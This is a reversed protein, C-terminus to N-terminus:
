CAVATPLISNFRDLIAEKISEMEIPRGLVKEVATMRREMGCPRILSFNELDDNKVNLSLGHFSIWNKISIGLSAIKEEGVWVGTLGPIQRAKAGFDVLSAIVINELQRLFWHIDKKLYNLNCIPYVTLQGPGHYTVEGGREIRFVKLGKKELEADSILINGRDAGRGLTIVPYHRCFILASVYAGDKVKLFVEKQFNWGKAFDVLGLDFIECHM